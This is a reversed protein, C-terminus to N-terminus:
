ADPVDVQASGTGHAGAQNPQSERDVVNQGTRDPEWDESVDGQIRAYLRLCEGLIRLADEGVEQSAFLEPLATDFSLELQLSGSPLEVGLDYGSLLLRRKAHGSQGCADLFWTPSGTSDAHLLYLL